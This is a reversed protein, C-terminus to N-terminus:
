WTFMSMQLMTSVFCVSCVLTFLLIFPRSFTSNFSFLTNSYCNEEEEKEEEEKEENEEKKKKREGGKEEGGGEEGEGEKKM